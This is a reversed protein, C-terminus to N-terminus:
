VTESFAKGKRREFESDVAAYVHYPYRNASKVFRNFDVESAPIFEDDADSLPKSKQPFQETAKNGLRTRRIRVRRQGDIRESHADSSASQEYGTVYLMDTLADEENGQGSGTMYLMESLEEEVNQYMTDVAYDAAYPVEVPATEAPLMSYAREALFVSLTENIAAERLGIFLLTSHKLSLPVPSKAVRTMALTFVEYKAEHIKTVEEQSVASRLASNFDVSEKEIMIVKLYLSPDYSRLYTKDDLSLCKGEILLDNIAAMRKNGQIQELYTIQSKKGHKREEERKEQLARLLQQMICAQHENM